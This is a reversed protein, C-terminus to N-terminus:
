AEWGADEFLPDAVQEFSQFRNANENRPKNGNKSTVPEWQEEQALEKAWKDQEEENVEDAWSPQTELGPRAIKERGSAGLAATKRDGKEQRVENLNATEPVSNTVESLPESTVAGNVQTGPANPKEFTDLLPGTEANLPKQSSDVSAPKGQQWANQKATFSNAKTGM